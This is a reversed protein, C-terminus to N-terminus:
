KLFTKKNNKKAGDNQKQWVFWFTWSHVWSSFLFLWGCVNNKKRFYSFGGVCMIKKKFFHLQSDLQDLTSSHATCYPGPTQQNHKIM